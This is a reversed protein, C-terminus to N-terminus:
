LPRRKRASRRGLTMLPSRAGGTLALARRVLAAGYLQEACARGMLDVASTILTPDGTMFSGWATNRLDQLEQQTLDQPGSSADTTWVAGAAHRDRPHERVQAFAEAVHRQVARSRPPQWDQTGWGATHDHRAREARRSDRWEQVAQSRQAPTRWGPTGTVGRLRFALLGSPRRAGDTPAATTGLWATVEAATWGADSVERVAWAVRPVDARRLWPVQRVLEAALQYRRGVKNLKGRAGSSKRTKKGTASTREGDDLKSEPPNPGGRQGAARGVPSVGHAHQEDRQGHGGVVEM